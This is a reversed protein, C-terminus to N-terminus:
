PSPSGFDKSSAAAQPRAIMALSMGPQRSIARGPPGPFPGPSSGPALGSQEDRWSVDRRQDPRDRRQGAVRIPPARHSAGRPKEDLALEGLLPDGGLCQSQVFARQAFARRALAGRVLARLM